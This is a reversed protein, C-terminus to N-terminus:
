PPPAVSSHAPRVPRWIANLALVSLPLGLCTLAWAVCILTAMGKAWSRGLTLGVSAILQAVFLSAAAAAVIGAVRRLQGPDVGEVPLDPIVLALTYALAVALSAVTGLWFLVLVWIPPVGGRLPPLRRGCRACFRAFEPLSLGCAPCSIV